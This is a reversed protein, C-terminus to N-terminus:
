SYGQWPWSGPSSLSVIDIQIIRNKQQKEPIKVNLISLYKHALTKINVDDLFLFSLLSHAFSLHPSLFQFGCFLQICIILSPM